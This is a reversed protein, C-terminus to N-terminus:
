LLPRPALTSIIIRKLSIGPGCCGPMVAGGSLIRCAANRMPSVCTSAESPRHVPLPANSPMASDSVARSSASAFRRNPASLSPPLTCCGSIGVNKAALKPMTSSRKPTVHITMAGLLVHGALAPERQVHQAGALQHDHEVGRDDVHRQRRD